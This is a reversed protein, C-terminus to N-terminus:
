QRSGAVADISLRDLDIGPEAGLWHIYSLFTADFEDEPVDARVELRLPPDWDDYGHTDLSFRPEAFVERAKAEATEIMATLDPQEAADSQLMDSMVSM